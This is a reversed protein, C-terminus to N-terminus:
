LKIIKTLSFHQLNKTQKNNTKQKTKTKKVTYVFLNEIGRKTKDNQKEEPTKYMGSSATGAVTVGVTNM